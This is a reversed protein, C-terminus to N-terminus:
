KVIARVLDETKKQAVQPEPNLFVLEISETKVTDGTHHVNVMTDSGPERASIMFVKTGTDIM